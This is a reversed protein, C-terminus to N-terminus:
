IARGCLDDIEPDSPNNRILVASYPQELDSEVFMARGELSPHEALYAKRNPGNEHLIAFVKGAADALSPWGDDHVAEWLTKHRGRM